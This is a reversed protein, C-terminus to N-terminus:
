GPIHRRHRNATSARPGFRPFHSTHAVASDHTVGDTVGTWLYQILLQSAGAKSLCTLSMLDDHDVAAGPQTLFGSQEAGTRHSRTRSERGAQSVM